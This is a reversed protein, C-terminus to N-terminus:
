QPDIAAIFVVDMVVPIRLAAKASITLKLEL